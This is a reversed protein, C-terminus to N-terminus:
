GGAAIKAWAEAYLDARVSLYGPYAVRARPILARDLTVVSVPDTSELLVESTPSVAISPGGILM